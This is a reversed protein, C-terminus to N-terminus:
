CNEFLNTSGSWPTGYVLVKDKKPILAPADDNIIRANLHERWFKTHTSKGTGSPASFIIGRNRYNIASSHVILGGNMIVMNNFAKGLVHNIIKHRIFNNNECYVIKIDTWQSDSKLYAIPIKGDSYLVYGTEGDAFTVISFDNNFYLQKSEIHIHETRILTMNVYNKLHPKSKFAELSTLDLGSLNNIRMKVNAIEYHMLMFIVGGSTFIFLLLM